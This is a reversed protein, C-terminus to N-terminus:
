QWLNDSRVFSATTRKGAGTNVTPLSDVNFAADWTVAHGGTGDQLLSIVLVDGNQANSPANVHLDGTLAAVQVTYGLTVDIDLNAAYALAQYPKQRAGQGVLADARVMREGAPTFLLVSDGPAPAATTRYGGGPNYTTVM